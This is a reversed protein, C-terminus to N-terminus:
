SFGLVLGNRCSIYNWTWHLNGNSDESIDTMVKQHGTYTVTANPAVISDVYRLDIELNNYDSFPVIKHGCLYVTRNSENIFVACNDTYLGMGMAGYWSYHEAGPFLMEGYGLKGVPRDYEDYAQLWDNVKIRDSEIFGTKIYNANIYLQGNEMFIGPLTGNNTLKNFVFQQTQANVADDAITTATKGGITTAASLRFEGTELNWYNNHNSQMEYYSNIESNRPNTVLTYYVDGSSSTIWHAPTWEETQTIASICKYTTGNYKVLDGVDYLSYPDYNLVPHIIYYQKGAVVERDSTPMFTGTNFDSIIGARLLNANLTGATIFDAVFHGDLTWATRYPGNINSAFGIGNKNIRLIETATAPDTSNMVLIEQPNPVVGSGYVRNGEEDIGVFVVHSDGPNTLLKTAYDIEAKLIAEFGKATKKIQEDYNAEINEIFNTKTAGLEMKDYRDLLVNYTTKVVKVNNATVGLDPHYVSVTDCLNVRQLSAVDKYEDTQWLQVFDIKINEKPVWTDNNTLYSTARQRLQDQTPQEQFDSTFDVPIAQPNTVSSDAVIREDLMVVIDTDGAEESRGKWYPIIANYINEADVDHNIDRLNKGYRVTVNSNTGRESYLRVVWNDFKYEGGGFSDLISGDTGGLISRVSSPVEVKFSGSGSKDTWFEFPNNNISESPIKYFAEAATTATFPNLIIRSLKYSLHHAYFTVLGNMPATKRYIRFPQIDRQDDHTCAIYRGIQLESFYKGDVPYEFECEFMGNREESVVCYTSEALRCICKGDFNTETSDYLYPIM